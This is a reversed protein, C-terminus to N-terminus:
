ENVWKMGTTSALGVNTSHGKSQTPSHHDIMTTVNELKKELGKLYQRLRESAPTAQNTHKPQETTASSGSKDLDQRTM